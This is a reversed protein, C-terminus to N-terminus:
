TGDAALPVGNVGVTSDCEAEVESKMSIESPSKHDHFYGFGDNTHVEQTM